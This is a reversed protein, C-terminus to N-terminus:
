KLYLNDVGNEEIDDSYKKFFPEKKEAFEEETMADLKEDGYKQIMDRYTLSNVLDDVFVNSDYVELM